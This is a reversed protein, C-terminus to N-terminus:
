FFFFFSKPKFNKLRFLFNYLLSHLLMSLPTPKPGPGPRWQCPPQRSFLCDQWAEMGWRLFTFILGARVGKQSLEHINCVLFSIKLFNWSSGLECLQYSFLWFKFWLDAWTLSPVGSVTGTVQLRHETTAQLTNPHLPFYTAFSFPDLIKWELKLLLLEVIIMQM